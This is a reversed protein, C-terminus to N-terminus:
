QGYFPVSLNLYTQGKEEDYAFTLQLNVKKKNLMQYTDLRRTYGYYIYSGSVNQEDVECTELVRYITDKMATRQPASLRGSYSGKMNIYFKGAMDLRRYAEKIKEKFDIICDIHDRLDIKTIVQQCVKKNKGTGSELNNLTISTTNNENGAYLKLTNKSEAFRYESIELNKAIFSLLAKQEKESVLYKEYNGSVVVSSELPISNGAQFAEVIKTDNKTGAIVVLQLLVAIWVLGIFYVIVKKNM